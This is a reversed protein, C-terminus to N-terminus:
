IPNVQRKVPKDRRIWKEEDEAGEYEYGTMSLLWGLGGNLAETLDGLGTLLM